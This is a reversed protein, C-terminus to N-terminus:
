MLMASLEMGIKEIAQKSLQQVMPNKLAEKVVRGAKDLAKKLKQRHTDNEFCAPILSLLHHALGITLLSPSPGLQFTSSNTTFQVITCVKIRVISGETNDAVTFESALFPLEQGFRFDDVDRYFFGREDEPLYFGYAGNKTPGDYNNCVLSAIWEYWSSVDTGVGNAGNSGIISSGPVRAIAIAGGNNIDSMQATCLLSQALVICKEAQQVLNEGDKIDYVFMHQAHNLMVAVAPITGSTYVSKLYGSMLGAWPTGSTTITMSFYVPANTGTGPGSTHFPVTVIGNADTYYVNNAINSFDARYRNVTVGIQAQHAQPFTLTFTSVTIAGVTEEPKIGMPYILRQNFERPFPMVADRTDFFWPNAMNVIEDGILSIRQAFYPNRTNFLTDDVPLTYNTVKGATAFIANRLSPYVAVSSRNDEAFAANIVNKCAYIASKGYTNPWRQPNGAGTEPDLIQDVIMEMEPSLKKYTPAYEKRAVYAAVKHPGGKVAKNKIKKYKDPSIFKGGNAEVEIKKALQSETLSM